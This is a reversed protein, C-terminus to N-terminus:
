VRVRRAQSIRDSLAAGESRDIAEFYAFVAAGVGLLNLATAGVSGLAFFVIWGWDGLLFGGILPLTLLPYTLLVNVLIILLLVTVLQWYRRRGVRLARRVAAIPGAGEAAIIPAVLMLSPTLLLLSVLQLLKAVVFAAVIIHAKRLTFKLCEKASRDVGQRWGMVLHTLAVGLFPLILFQLLSSVWSGSFVGLGTFNEQGEFTGSEVDFSDLNFTSFLNRSAWAALVQSPLVFAAAITVVTRPRSRLLAFAGDCVDLANLPRRPVPMAPHVGCRYCVSSNSRHQAIGLLDRFTGKAPQPIQMALGVSGVVPTAGAGRMGM